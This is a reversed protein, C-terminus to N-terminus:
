QYYSIGCKHHSGKLQISQQEMPMPQHKILHLYPPFLFQFHNRFQCPKTWCYTKQIIEIKARKTLSFFVEPFCKFKLVKILVNIQSAFIDFVFCWARSILFAKLCRLLYKSFNKMWFWVPMLLHPIKDPMKQDSQLRPMTM